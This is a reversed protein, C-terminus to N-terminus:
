PSRKSLMNNASAMFFDLYYGSGSGSNFIRRSGTRYTLIVSRRIWIGFFFIEQIWLVAIYHCYTGLIFLKSFKTEIKLLAYVIGVCQRNGMWHRSTQSTDIWISGGGVWGGGELIEIGVPSSM